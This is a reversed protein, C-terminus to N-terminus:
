AEGREAMSVVAQGAVILHDLVQVDLTGQASTLQAPSDFQVRVFHRREHPM